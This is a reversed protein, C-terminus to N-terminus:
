CEARSPWGRQCLLLPPSLAPVSGARTQVRNKRSQEDYMIDLIHKEGEVFGLGKTDGRGRGSGLPGLADRRWRTLLSIEEGGGRGRGVAVGLAVVLACGVAVVGAGRRRREIPAWPRVAAGSEAVAMKNQSVLEYVDFTRPDVKPIQLKNPDGM